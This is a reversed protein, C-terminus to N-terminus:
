RFTWTEQHRQFSVQLREQMDPPKKDFNPVEKGQSLLFAHCQEGPKLEHRVGCDDCQPVQSNQRNGNQTAMAKMAAEIIATQQANVVPTAALAKKASANAEEQHMLNVTDLVSELMSQIKLPDSKYAVDQQTLSRLSDRVETRHDKSLNSVMDMINHIHTDTLIRRSSSELAKKIINLKICLKQLDASTM